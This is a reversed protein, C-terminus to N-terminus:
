FTQGGKRRSAYVAGAGALVLLVGAGILLENPGGTGPLGGNSGGNNGGDSDDDDSGRPLLTVVASTDINQIANPLLAQASRGPVFLASSVASSSTVSTSVGGTNGDDYACNATITHQEVSDVPDTDFNFGLSTGSGTQPNTSSTPGDYTITWDCSVDSDAHGTVHEGGTIVEDDLTISISPITYVANAAGATTLGILSAAAAVVAIKLKLM